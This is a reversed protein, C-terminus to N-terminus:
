AQHPAAPSPEGNLTLTWDVVLDDRLSDRVSCYKTVALDIARETHVREIGDGTITIALSAHTLYRPTTDARTGIVDITLSTVPTRRKALIDVIDVSICGALAGLLADVPSPATQGSADLQFTPGNPRGVDFRHEGRWTLRTTSQGASVAVDRDARARREGM